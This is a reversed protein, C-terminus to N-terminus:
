VIVMMEKIEETFLSKKGLELVCFVLGFDLKKVIHLKGTFHGSLKKPKKHFRLHIKYKESFRCKGM